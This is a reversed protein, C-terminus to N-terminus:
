KAEEGVVEPEREEEEEEAEREQQQVKEQQEIVAARHAAAGARDAKRADLEDLREIMGYLILTDGGRIETKGTPAGVYGGGHRQVGLVLVGEAPLNLEILTRDALWDDPQVLMESIAYGGSLRFLAAYDCAQVKGYKVLAWEIIPSMQRDIWQSNSVFILALVGAALLSLNRVWVYWESSAVGAVSAMLSAIVTVIGANGLMMLTFVIRRRVPHKMIAESESTTFGCGTLASRSQFQAAQRSMGTLTLAVTAFRTIVLTLSLAVLLTIVAIM